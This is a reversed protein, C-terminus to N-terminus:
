VHEGHSCQIEEDAIGRMFNLDFQEPLSAADLIPALTPDYIPRPISIRSDLKEAQSYPFPYLPM